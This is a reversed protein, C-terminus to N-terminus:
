FLFMNLLNHVLKLLLLLALAILCDRIEFHRHDPVLAGREVPHDLGGLVLGLLGSLGLRLSGPIAYLFAGALM